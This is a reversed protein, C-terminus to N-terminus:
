HKNLFLFLEDSRWDQRNSPTDNFYDHLIVAHELDGFHVKYAPLYGFVGTQNKVYLWASITVKQAADTEFQEYSKVVSLLEDTATKGIIQATDAPSSYLEYNSKSFAELVTRSEDYLTLFQKKEENWDYSLTVYELCREQTQTRLDFVLKQSYHNCKLFDIYSIRINKDNIELIKYLSPSPTNDGDTLTLHEEFIKRITGSQFSYIEVDRNELPNGTNLSIKELIIEASNDGTIDEVSLSKLRYESSVSQGSLNILVSNGNENSIVLYTEKYLPNMMATVHKSETGNVEAIWAIANEFGNNFRMKRKHFGNIESPTKAESILAIGDGFLWGIQRNDAKIKYWKFRQNQNKDEHEIKTEGIIEFLKGEDFVSTTAKAFSTDSYLTVAGLSVAVHKKEILDFVSASLNKQFFIFLFIGIFFCRKKMTGLFSFYTFFYSKMPLQLAISARGVICNRNWKTNNKPSFSLVFDLIFFLKALM